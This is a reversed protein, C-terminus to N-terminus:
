AVAYISLNTASVNSQFRVYDGPICFYDPTTGTATGPIYVSISGNLTIQIPVTGTNLFYIASTHKGIVIENASANIVGNSSYIITGYSM